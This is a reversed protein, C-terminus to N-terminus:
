ARPVANGQRRAVLWGLTAVLLTASIAVNVGGGILQAARPVDPSASAVVEGAAGVVLVVALLVLLISCLLQIWGALHVGGALLALVIILVLPPALATGNNIFDPWVSEPAGPGNFQYPWRAVLSIVAELVIVGLVVLSCLQMSRGLAKM